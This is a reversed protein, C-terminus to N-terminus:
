SYISVYYCPGYLSPSQFSCNRARNRQRYFSRGKSNGVLGFFLGYAINLGYHLGTDASISGTRYFAFTLSLGLIISFIMNSLSFGAYWYDDLAYILISIIFIWVIHIKGKLLNILYGKVILDIILSGVLYGIFVEVLSMILNVPGHISVLELDGIYFQTGFMILWFEFGILFSIFFNKKWGPQFLM